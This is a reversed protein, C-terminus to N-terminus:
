VEFQLRRRAAEDPSWVDGKRLARCYDGLALTERSIRGVPDCALLAVATLFLFTWPIPSRAIWVRAGHLAFWRSPEGRLTLSTSEGAESMKGCMATRGRQARPHM